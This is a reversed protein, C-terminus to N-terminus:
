CCLKGKTEIKEVNRNCCGQIMGSTPNVASTCKNLASLVIITIIIRASAEIENKNVSIKKLDLGFDDYRM